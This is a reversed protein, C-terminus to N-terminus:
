LLFLAHARFENILHSQVEAGLTEKGEVRDYPEHHEPHGQVQAKLIELPDDDGGLRGSDPQDGLEDEQGGEGEQEGQDYLGRGGYGQSHHEDCGARAAVERVDYGIQCPPVHGDAHAHCGHGCRSGDEHRGQVEAKPSAQM